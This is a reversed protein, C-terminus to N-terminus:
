HLWPKNKSYLLQLNDVDRKTDMCQWFNNHKFAALQGINAAKELPYRELITKDNKLLKLFKKNIVFFGGNIWSTQIPKKESFNVVKKNKIILEGFRAPPRVATVTVMKKNKFHFNTLKKINVNSLGDGYTLYFNKENILKSAKKVRGGTMAKQGTDIFTIKCDKNFLKIKISLGKKLNKTIKKTVKSKTFYEVIKNGKYGLAIVFENINYNLYINIIHVIIPIKGIKVLPKPIVKTIDGLRSGAGGALIIVKM